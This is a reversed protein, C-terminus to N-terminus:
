QVGGIANGIQVLKNVLEAVAEAQKLHIELAPWFPGVEDVAVFRVEHDTGANEVVLRAIIM